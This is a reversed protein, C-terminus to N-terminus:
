QRKNSLTGAAWCQTEPGDQGEGSRWDPYRVAHSGPESLLVCLTPIYFCFSGGTWSFLEPGLKPLNCETLCMKREADEEFEWCKSSFEAKLMWRLFLIFNTNLWYQRFSNTTNNFVMEQTNGRFQLLNNTKNGSFRPNLTGVQYINRNQGSKIFCVWQFAVEDEISEPSSEQRCKIVESGGTVVGSGPAYFGIESKCDSSVQHSHLAWRLSYGPITKSWNSNAARPRSLATVLGWGFLLQQYVPNNSGEFGSLLPSETQSASPQHDQGLSDEPSGEQLRSWTFTWPLSSSWTLRQGRM